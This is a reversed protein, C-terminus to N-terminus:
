LGFIQFLREVPHPISITDGYDLFTEMPLQNFWAIVWWLQPDSYHKSALKWFRDGVRWTHSVLQLNGIEEVTPYRFAPTSYQLIRSVGRNEFLDKYLPDVNYVRNRGLYRESTAM